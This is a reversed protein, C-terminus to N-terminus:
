IPVIPIAREGVHGLLGAQGRFHETDVNSDEGVEIIVTVLVQEEAAKRVLITEESVIGVAGKGLDGLVGTEASIKDGHGRGSVIVVVAAEIEVKAPVEVRAFIEGGREEIRSVTLPVAEKSVIAVKAEGIFKRPIPAPM